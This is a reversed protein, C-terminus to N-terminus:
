ISSEARPWDATWVSLAIPCAEGRECEGCLRCEMAVVLPIDVAVLDAGCIIAKAMHEPLAIGGSAILTVEDRIGAKVLARHAERLFTQMHRPPARKGPATEEQGAIRRSPRVRAGMATSCWTFRRRATAPWNSLGHAAAPSAQVRIAVVQEPNEAKLAAQIEAVRDGDPIMAM